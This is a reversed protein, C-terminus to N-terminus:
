FDFVETHIAFGFRTGLTRVEDVLQPPGCCLVALGYVSALSGFAFDAGDSKLFADRADELIAKIDPRGFRLFPYQKSLDKKREEKVQTLYFHSIINCKNDEIVARSQSPQVLFLDPSFHPPLRNSAHSMARESFQESTVKGTPDQFPFASWHDAALQGVMDMDRIVWVFHIRTMQRGDRIEHVMENFMSQMPTIGIGGSIFLVHKYYHLPISPSGYPGEIFVTIEKLIAQPDSADEVKSALVQLKKPGIEWSVFVYKLKM